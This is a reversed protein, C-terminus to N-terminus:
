SSACRRRTGNFSTSPPPKWTLDLEPAEPGQIKFHITDEAIPVSRRSWTSVLAFVIASLVKPTEQAVGAGLAQPIM